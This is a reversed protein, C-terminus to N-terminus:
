FSFVGDKTFSVLTSHTIQDNDCFGYIIFERNKYPNYTVRRRSLKNFNKFPEVQIVIRGEIYAHVNKRGSKIVRLRGNQNVKFDCNYLLMKNTHGVVLKKQVISFWTGKKHLNRYVKVPLNIDVVRNKYPYIINSGIKYPEKRCLECISDMSEVSYVSDPTYTFYTNYLKTYKGCYACRLNNNKRM